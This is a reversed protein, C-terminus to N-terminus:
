RPVGRANRILSRAHSAPSEAEVAGGGRGGAASAGGFAVFADPVISASPRRGGSIRRGIGSGELEDKSEELAQANQREAAAAALAKAITSLSEVAKARSEREGEVLVKKKENWSVRAESAARKDDLAVMDPYVDVSAGGSQSNEKELTTTTTGGGDTSGPSSVSLVVADKAPTRKTSSQRQMANMSVKGHAEALKKVMHEMKSELDSIRDEYVERVFGLKAVLEARMSAMDHEMMVITKAADSTSVPVVTTGSGGSPTQMPANSPTMTASVSARRERAGGSSTSEALSVTSSKRRANTGGTAMISTPRAVVEDRLIDDVAKQMHSRTPSAGRGGTSTATEHLGHVAGYLGVIKGLSDAISSKSKSQTAVTSATPVTVGAEGVEGKPRSTPVNQALTQLFMKHEETTNLSDVLKTSLVQITELANNMDIVRMGTDSKRRRYAADDEDEDSYGSGSASSGRDFDDWNDDQGLHIIRGAHDIRITKGGMLYTWMMRQMSTIQLRLDHVLQRSARLKRNQLEYLKLHQVSLTVVKKKDALASHLESVTQSLGSRVSDFRAVLNTVQGELTRIKHRIGIPLRTTSSSPDDIDIGIMRYEDRIETLLTQFYTLKHQVADINGSFLSQATGQVEHAELADTVAKLDGEHYYVFDDTIQEFLLAMQDELSANKVELGVNQGELSTLSATQRSLSQDLVKVKEQLVQNTSRLQTLEAHMKHMTRRLMRSETFHFHEDAFDESFIVRFLAGVTHAIGLASRHLRSTALVMDTVPLAPIQDRQTFMVDKLAIVDYTAGGLESMTTKLKERLSELVRWEDMQLRTFLGEPPEAGVPYFTAETQIERNVKMVRLVPGGSTLPSASNNNDKRMSPVSTLGMPPTAPM